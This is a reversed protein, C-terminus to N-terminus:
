RTAGRLRMKRNPAGIHRWETVCADALPATMQWTASCQSSGRWETVCADALPAMIVDPCIPCPCGGNLLVLMLSHRVGGAQEFLAINNGGNLLVLM